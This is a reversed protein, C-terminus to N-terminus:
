YQESQSVSVRFVLELTPTYKPQSDVTPIKVGLMNALHFVSHFVLLFTISATTVM